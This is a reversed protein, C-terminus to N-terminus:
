TARLGTWAPDGAMQPVTSMIPGCGVVFLTTLAMVARM